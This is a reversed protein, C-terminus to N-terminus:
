LVTLRPGSKVGQLWKKADSVSQFMKMPFAPPKFLFFLNVVMRSIASPTMIAMALTVQNLKESIFDRDNKAPSEARPHSEAIILVKKDGVFQLFIRMDDEMQERTAQVFPEDKFRSYLYGDDEFWIVSNSLIAVKRNEPIAFLEHSFITHQLYLLLLELFFEHVFNQLVVISQKM